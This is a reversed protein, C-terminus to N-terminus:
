KKDVQHTRIHQFLKKLFCIEAQQSVLLNVLSSSPNCLISPALVIIYNELNMKTHPLNGESCLSTFFHSLFKLVNQNVLPLSRLFKEYETPSYDMFGLAVAKDYNPIVPEPIARLFYKLLCAPVHPEESEEIAYSQHEAIKNAYFSLKKNSISIRFIGETQAGGRKIM